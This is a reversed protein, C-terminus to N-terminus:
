GLNHLSNVTSVHCDVKLNNQEVNSSKATQLLCKAMVHDYKQLRMALSVTHSTNIGEERCRKITMLYNEVFRRLNTKSSVM